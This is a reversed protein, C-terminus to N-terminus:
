QCVYPFGEGIDERDQNAFLSYVKENRNNRPILTCTGVDEVSNNIVKVCYTGAPLDVFKYGLFAAPTAIVTGSCSSGAYLELVASLPAEGSDYRGDNDRDWYVIVLISSNRVPTPTYTPTNTPTDTPPTITTPIPTLTPTESVSATSTQPVVATGTTANSQSPQILTAISSLIFLLVGVGALVAGVKRAQAELGALISVGRVKLFSLVILGLGALVFLSPVPTKTLDSLFQLMASSRVISNQPEKLLQSISDVFVFSSFYFIRRVRVTLM